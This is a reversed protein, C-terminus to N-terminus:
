RAVVSRRMQEAARDLTNRDTGCERMLDRAEEITLGHSKKLDDVTYPEDGTVQRDDAPEVTTKDHIM